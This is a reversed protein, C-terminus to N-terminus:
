VMKIFIDALTQTDSWQAAREKLDSLLASSISIIYDIKALMETLQAMEPDSGALAVCEYQLPKIYM